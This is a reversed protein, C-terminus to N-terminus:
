PFLTEQSRVWHRRTKASKREGRPKWLQIGRGNSRGVRKIKRLEEERVCNRLIEGLHIGSARTERKPEVAM